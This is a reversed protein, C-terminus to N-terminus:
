HQGSAAFCFPWECVVSVDVCKSLPRNASTVLVIFFFYFFVLVISGDSLLLYEPKLLKAKM